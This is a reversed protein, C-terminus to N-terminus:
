KYEMQTRTNLAALTAPIIYHRQSHVLRFIIALIRTSAGDMGVADHSGELLVKM